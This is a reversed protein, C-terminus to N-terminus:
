EPPRRCRLPSASKGHEKALATASDVKRLARLATPATFVANVRHKEIVRWYEAADPTGVPKGEFVVSTCGHLLPAYCIYSHGVVWGIDSASWYTEGPAVDMYNDMTWQLAVAHSHDRVVGKPRGTTGSTYLIYLPDSARMVAGPHPEGAAVLGAFDHWGEAELDVLAAPEEARQHVVVPTSSGKGALALADKVIPGYPVPEGKEIGCSSTIIAKPVADAIRISLEKPAFGGFVVSHVAGLRACALMAVIAEPVMPMYILVTDGKAVGLDAELAGALKAVDSHLEAYSIDRSRGGVASHYALATQAGRTALHRDLCNHSMNLTGDGYWSYYPARSSDLAATPPTVWEIADAAATWFGDPDNTAKAVHARYVDPSM